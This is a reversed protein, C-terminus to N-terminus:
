ATTRGGAGALSSRTHRHRSTCASQKTKAPYLRHAGIIVPRHRTTAQCSRFLIIALIFFFYGMLVFYPTKWADMQYSLCSLSQRASTGLKSLVIVCPEVSASALYMAFSRMSSRHSTANSSPFITTSSSPCTTPFPFLARIEPGTVTYAHTNQWHQARRCYNAHQEFSSKDNSSLLSTMYKKPMRKVRPPKRGHRFM